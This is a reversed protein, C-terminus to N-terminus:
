DKIKIKKKKKEKMEPLSPSFVVGPTTLEGLRTYM